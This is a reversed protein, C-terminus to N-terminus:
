KGNPDIAGNAAHQEIARDVKRVYSTWTDRNPPLDANGETLGREQIWDYVDDMKAGKLAPRDRLAQMYQGHAKLFCDAFQRAPVDTAPPLQAVKGAPPQPRDVAARLKTLTEKVLARTTRSPAAAYMGFSVFSPADSIFQADEALESLAPVVEKAVFATFREVEGTFQKVVKARAQERRQSDTLPLAYPWYTQFSRDDFFPPHSGPPIAQYINPVVGNVIEKVYDRALWEQASPGHCELQEQTVVDGTAFPGGFAFYVFRRQPPRPPLPWQDAPMADLRKGEEDLRQAELDAADLMQECKWVGLLVRDRADHLKV